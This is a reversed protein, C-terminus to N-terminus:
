INGAKTDFNEGNKHLFSLISFSDISQLVQCCYLVSYVALVSIKARKIVFNLATKQWFVVPSIHTQFSSFLNSYFFCIIIILFDARIM